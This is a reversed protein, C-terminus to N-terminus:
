NNTTPQPNHTTPQQDDDTLTRNDLFGTIVGAVSL